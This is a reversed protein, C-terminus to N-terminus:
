GMVVKDTLLQCIMAAAVSTFTKGLEMEDAVLAGPMDADWVCRTGIFRIASVQHALFNMGPLGPISDKHCPGRNDISQRIPHANLLRVAEELWEHEFKNTITNVVTDLVSSSNVPDLDEEGDVEEQVEKSSQDTKKEDEIMEKLQESTPHASLSMNQREQFKHCRKPNWLCADPGM